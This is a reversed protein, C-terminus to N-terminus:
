GLHERLFALALGRAQRTAAGSYVEPRMDCAFGHRADSIVCDIFPKKAEKMAEIVLPRQEWTVAPDLGGWILLQPGHLKPVRDLFAHIQGGYYSAACALPLMTNALFAMRGGMCYGIAGLASGGAQRDQGFWAAAARVDAEIGGLTMAAMHEKVAPLDTYAFERAPATRHFIEPALAVFGEAAFKECVEQIHGNVGFAEQFVLLGPAKARDEPRAAWARMRTGDAVELEIWAGDISQM